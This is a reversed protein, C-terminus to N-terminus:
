FTGGNLRPVNQVVFKDTTNDYTLVSSNNEANEFVVDGADIVKFDNAKAPLYNISQVRQPNNPNIAIRVAGTTVNAVPLSNTKVRVSGITQSM